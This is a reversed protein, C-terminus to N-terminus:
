ALDLLITANQDRVAVHRGVDGTLKEGILEM